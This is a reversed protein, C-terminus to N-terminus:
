RTYGAIAEQAAMPTNTAIIDVGGELLDHYIQPGRAAAQEDINGFTGFITPIGAEHLQNYLEPPSRRTGTFAIVRDAPPIKREAWRDFEGQGRISVSQYFEPAYTYNDIAQELSYSIIMCYPQADYQRIFDIVERHDVSRKIDVSLITKSEKAWNLIDGFTPIGYQTLRGDDDKLHLDKLDAWNLNAVAGSGNTTRDVSNDHMLILQGDKTKAVDCEIIGPVERRLHAFTELCNEPWGALGVCGRHGSVLPEDLPFSIDPLGSIETSSGSFTNNKCATFVLLFLISFISHHM